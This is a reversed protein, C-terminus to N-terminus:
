SSIGSQQGGHRDEAVGRRVGAARQRVGGDLSVEQERPGVEVRVLVLEGRRSPESVGQVPRAPLALAVVGDDAGLQLVHHGAQRLPALRCIGVVRSLAMFAAAPLPRVFVVNLLRVRPQGSARGREWVWIHVATQRLPLFGNRSSGGTHFWIWKNQQVSKQKM